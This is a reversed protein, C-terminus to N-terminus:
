CKQWNMFAFWLFWGVSEVDKDKKSEVLEIDLGVLKSALAINKGMKGIAYARQDEDLWVKAVGANKDVDVKIIQAPKLAGRIVEELSEGWAIVDIKESALERLITKIRSGGVGICTGVPDIDQDMTSVLIKSKYGPERVIGKIEIIREYVEPIELEILAKLFGASARDLILQNENRPEKLVEKLMAKIPRGPILKEGPVFCSKPLFAITDQLKVTAGARELKHVDGVVISGEKPKYENYIQSSEIARIQGAIGQKAKIIDIRSLPEDFPVFIFDGVKTKSDIAKAKRQSIEEDEYEVSSVVEKKVFIFLEGTTNDIEVKFELGPHKRRLSSLIGDCIAESIVSRELGKEEIIENIVEILNVNGKSLNLPLCKKVLIMM